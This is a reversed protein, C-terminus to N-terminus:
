PVRDHIVAHHDHIGAGAPDFFDDLSAVAAALAVPPSAAARENDPHNPLISRLGRGNRTTMADM